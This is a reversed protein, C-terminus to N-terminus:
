PGELRRDLENHVVAIVHSALYEVRGVSLRRAGLRELLGEAAKPLGLHDGLVFTAGGPLEAKRLDEGQKHLYLLARGEEAREKLISELGKRAVTIGPEPEPVEGPGARLSAELAIQIHSAVNREDPYLRRVKAGHFTVAKPPDPPGDLVAAIATDRRIEESLFLASTVCRCVLDMRGAGPLDNLKFGPSTPARRAFLIIQRM